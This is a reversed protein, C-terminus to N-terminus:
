MEPLCDNEVLTISLLIGLVVGLGATL